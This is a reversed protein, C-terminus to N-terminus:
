RMLHWPNCCNNSFYYALLVQKLKSVMSNNADYPMDSFTYGRLYLFFYANVFFLGLDGLHSCCIDLAAATRQQSCVSLHINLSRQHSDTAPSSLKPPHPLPQRLSVAAHQLLSLWGGTLCRPHNGVNDPTGASTPDARHHPQSFRPCLFSSSLVSRQDGSTHGFFPWSQWM